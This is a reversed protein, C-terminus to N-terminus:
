MGVAKDLKERMARFDIVKEAHSYHEMMRRSSHGAVAQIEIDSIGDLRGLTIFTHRLSHYSLNRKKQESPIAPADSTAKRGASIGIEELERRLANRFFTECMPQGPRDFSEFVYDNQETHLSIKRVEEFTQEVINLYPVIREKGRKPKKLGDMNVYNHTLNILGNAFDGWKLGRVEGRRMGCLLGLLVALRSRPDTTKANILTAREAFTLVGKEKPSDAADKIKRFPDKDLEDRDHAYHVAVRMTSLASNITRSSLSNDVAWSMWDKINGATLERLTIKAFGPFPKVHLRVNTENQLIYYASLPKKKLNACEKVYPSNPKWFYELYPIFIRDASDTEFRIESLMEKAKLAAERKREKKGEAIIGTSRAKTYKGAKDDWFRAYWILGNGTKRKFLTFPYRM